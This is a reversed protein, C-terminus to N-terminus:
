QLYVSSSLHGDGAGASPANSGIGDGTDELEPSEHQNDMSKAYNFAELISVHGDANSDANVVAGLHDAKNLAATFYYSFMDHDGPGGAWSYEFESAASILINKNSRLDHLLGGSFCPEFVAIMRQYNLSNIQVALSDDWLENTPEGYYYVTEDYKSALNVGNDVEDGGADVRGGALHPPGYIHTTDYGGGHNTVFFFFRDDSTMKTKLYSIANNLGAKSAAYNVTMDTDNGTGNKYVVVINSKSYGNRLLATYMFKLDNWYRSHANANNIGGSYLLAWKRSFPFKVKCIEPFRECLSWARPVIIGVKREIKLIPLEPCILIPEGDGIDNSFSSQRKDKSSRRINGATTRVEIFSGFYKEKNKVIEEAGKGDLVIYASDPMPTNAQYYKMDTLLMPINDFVFFGKVALQDEDKLKMSKTFSPEREANFIAKIMAISVEKPEGNNGNKSHNNCSVLMWLLPALMIITRKM